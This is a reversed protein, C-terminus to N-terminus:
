IVPLPCLKNMTRQTVTDGIKVGYIRTVGDAGPVKNMIRGLAWKSPPLNENKILVIQGIELEKVKKLWKPRQQLQTLYEQQWQHWFDSLLKQVYQWRSLHNVPLHKLDPHPVTVPADGMIFHGPTLPITNETDSEDIPWLPRSNLCAEVQCLLTSFEEYTLNRNLIRKLHHKMSKVGAEWLGGVHPSYAPIFHWQTGELALTEAIHGEFDLKAQQLTIALEKNAGVFNRGQDSYLHACKGRRSVFRRFAGIFSELTLDGVIEIHIAKTVMCVFICVYAKTTRVGRGKSALVQYPGALDVGSNIFAKAPTVRVKPLDGMLQNRAAATHRACILCQHIKKKVLNKAKLIWYNTKLYRLMLQVGGHLTKLHADAVILTTLENKCDLIIPHKLNEAIDAHRLRGGVRLISDEDLYPLLSKIKSDKKLCKRKKLAEIEEMFDKRQVITICTKLSENLEYTTMPKEKNELGKGKLFRKCYTISKLLETLTDFDKFKQELNNEESNSNIKVNCQMDPLKEPRSLYVEENKLWEPGNWWLEDYKLEAPCKGRSAVDAPNHQSQVHYWNHGINDLIEVVRNRVFTNWRAPDGSLWALVITSDTWAFIQDDPIRMAEKVQKLLRSLLVAGCLELRPLSVPKVPAVRSKAAVISTEVEKNSKQVRVYVVAAFAKNSADCFGHLTIQDDDTTELWRKVTIDNIDQFSYRIDQWEKKVSDALEEDWTLGLLWLKQILLKGPLISPAIWGLPDFLKQMEALITRKTVDENCPQQINLNYEFVDKGMNWQVGLARITGDINIDMKVHSSRQSSDFQALFHADNSCWKQLVLGGKRLIMDVEKATKIADQLNDNGSMLDDMYFDEKITKAADPYDQGEDNAIQHMTKVALYPASATGFTVRSLRYDKIPENTSSRWVIRQLDRDEKTVLIQRYMKQVDAVYCIKKMRWRMILNRMDEQLQPGVLLEDNLSINNKGKQSANYVPRVQTTEKEARIVAHHPLYVAPKNIEEKPVEEMHNMSIYEEMVKAYEKKLNADKEFRREMQYLRKIAINRTDGEKCLLKDTKTPLKVIYRGEETRTYTKQYIEECRREEATLTGKQSTDLEWMNKLMNDLNLDLHAHMVMIDNRRPLEEESEGFLIWGLCTNQACPTGPPGEIIEAKFIRAYVKVSLLLDVRGPQYFSPDALELGQIHPWNKASIRQHSPLQATLRTSIFAKVNLQFVKDTRSLLQIEAAHKINVKTSGFGTVTGNVPIRKIKLAQAARESIFTEQSGPDILARLMTTRTGSADRVPVLATALLGSTSRGVFNVSLEVDEQPAFIDDEQEVNTHHAQINDPQNPSTMAQTQHVMTHHRKHCIRCSMNLRCKRASHGPALCNFCLNNTKVYEIRNPMDMSIFDKCHCLTHKDKCLTCNRKENTDKTAVHVTFEKNRTSREKSPPSVLELTRFKTQLFKMLDDWKPLEESDEKYAFEEWDRHSEPDLKQVVLFIIFPDWSDISIDLNELSKLCETTTDLLSKLSVASQATMKKQTFLKKLLSNVILKKNGYRAQLIDWAQDYNADTVQINKLLLEAEGRLSSKLYHLKQVKNLASNNHVLSLFMDQYTPWEEYVGAFNPLEINPLRVQVPVSSNGSTCSNIQILMDQLQSHLSLYLEETEYFLDDTFYSYESRRAKPVCKVLKNHNDRYSDWYENIIKLRSEIYGKTLRQKPCKGLNVQAKHLIESTNELLSITENVETM